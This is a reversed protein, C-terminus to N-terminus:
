QWWRRRKRPKEAPIEIDDYWQALILARDRESMRDWAVRVDVIEWKEAQERDKRVREAFRRGEAHMTSM